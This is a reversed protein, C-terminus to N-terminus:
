LLLSSSSPLRLYVFSSELEVSACLFFGTSLWRFIAVLIILVRQIAGDLSRGRSALRPNGCYRYSLM